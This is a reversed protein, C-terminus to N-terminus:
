LNHKQSISIPESAGHICVKMLCSNLLGLFLCELEFGSTRQKRRAKSLSIELADTPLIFARPPPPTGPHSTKGKVVLAVHGCFDQEAQM